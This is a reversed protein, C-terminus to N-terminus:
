KTLQREYTNEETIIIDPCIDHEEAPIEKEMQLEFALAITKNNPHTKLYKDYYGKGYGIRNCTKDFVAGPMIVLMNEDYALKTQKPERIGKYGQELDDFSQIYFFEMEDGLVKPVAVKKESLWAQEIIERTGVERRYDVYCYISDTQLFFPHAVVKEYIRRSKEEWEKDTLQIRTELVRKRIDKKSEM